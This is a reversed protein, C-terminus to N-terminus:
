ELREATWDIVSGEETGFVAGILHVPKEMMRYPEAYGREKIQALAAKADDAEELKFEFIFVGETLEVVVDIRGRRTRMETQVQLSTGPGPSMLKFILYFISQYYRERRIQIDYPIGAFFVHLVDFFQEFDGARLATKLRWLYGGIMGNEASSFADLLHRLFATEVEYNPYSLRYLRSAKDYGKITLYGTQFLLSIPKLNDVEYSSFALEDVRLNELERVDYGRERLLKILFTPTGTEFWHNAFQRQKFLLLLSFPNYVEEGGAAFCFGDYWRRIRELLVDESVGEHTAFDRIYGQFFCRLEEDTIGPLAAFRSSMTIDELNNLGSFIGVKSFKSVGTLLVFRLYEDMGKLITYFGKLVERIRRAEQVNEINDILPKDYEDILVAVRNRSALEEILTVFQEYCREPELTLGHRRAIRQLYKSISQELEEATSVRSRSFDIRIVPHEEWDYDSDDIWLGQFLERRGQFIAELTSVLLSKGFRRPRSLFYVGKPYRVLEYIWRTKDVYLFGGEIIDSFTQIGVPLPKLM